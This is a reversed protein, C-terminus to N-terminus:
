RISVKHQLSPLERRQSVSLNLLSCIDTKISSKSDLSGFYRCFANCGLGLVTYIM